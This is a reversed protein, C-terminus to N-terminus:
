RILGSLTLSKMSQFWEQVHQRAAAKTAPLLNDLIGSVQPAFKVLLEGAVADQPFAPASTGNGDPALGDEVSCSVASLALAACFIYLYKKM